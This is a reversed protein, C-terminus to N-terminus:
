LHICQSSFMEIAPIRQQRTEQGYNQYLYRNLYSSSFSNTSDELIDFSHLLHIINESQMDFTPVLFHTPM